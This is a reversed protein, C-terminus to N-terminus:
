AKEYTDHIYIISSKKLYKETYNPLTPLLLARYKVCCLGGFCKWIGIQIEGDKM